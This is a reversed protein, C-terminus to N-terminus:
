FPLFDIEALSIFEFGEMVVTCTVVNNAPTNTPASACRQCAVGGEGMGLHHAAFVEAILGGFSKGPSHNIEATCQSCIIRGLVLM